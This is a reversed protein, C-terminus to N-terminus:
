IRNSLSSDIFINRKRFPPPSQTLLYLRLSKLDTGFYPESLAEISPLWSPLPIKKQVCALEIMAAVYNELFPSLKFSPSERLIQKLEKGNIKTLFDNIEALVYSSESSTSLDSLLKHFIHHAPPFLTKLVWESMEMGAKKASQRILSKEKASVRIQLQEKKEM